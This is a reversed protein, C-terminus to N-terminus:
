EVKWCSLIITCMVFKFDVGLPGQSCSVVHMNQFRSPSPNIVGIPGNLDM